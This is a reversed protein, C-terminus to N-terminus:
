YTSRGGSIDFVAATSFSNEESALWCVLSTFEYIELFRGRPVKSLMRQVHEKSMQELIRTKAGAPTVANVAINKDALEKGLSKTLGIAGAKGSSYASANANGDKGAVSAVNVIRGYNNKIMNPVITRCCNFTGVLNIDVIKKWMEVDYEWLPGTPGTIGANNILIDINNNLTIGNVTEEVEKYNSIDVKQSTLNESNLEKVAEDLLNQNIDWIIVKAGGELFRKAVDLGFGQGGGTVIATRGKFNFNNKNM